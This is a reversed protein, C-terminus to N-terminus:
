TFPLVTPVFSRPPESLPDEEDFPELNEERILYFFGLAYDVKYYFAKETVEVIEGRDYSRGGGMTRVVDGARFRPRWGSEPTVKTPSVERAADKLM